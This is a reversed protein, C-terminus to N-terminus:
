EIKTANMREHAGGRAGEKGAWSAASVSASTPLSPRLHMLSVPSTPVCSTLPPLAETIAYVSARPRAPDAAPPRARPQLMCLLPGNSQMSALLPGMMTVGLTVM